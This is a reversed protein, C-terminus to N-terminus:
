FGALFYFGPPTESSYECPDAFLVPDHTLVYQRAEECKRYTAYPGAWVITQATASSVQATASAPTAGTLAATGLAAALLVAAPLRRIKM